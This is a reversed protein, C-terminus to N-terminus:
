FTWSLTGTVTFPQGPIVRFQDRAGEFYRVDFLNQFNLQARFDEDEYFLTADTRTYGPIEFPSRSPSSLDSLSGNRDGVFYVGVGLGFGELAGRQFQYTTWLSAANRPANVLQVGEEFVTDETVRADTYAYSAIVNWGPLIEGVLDFEFGASAQEGVQVQFGPNAPDQTSVNTRTLDYYALTALLRDDFLSAKLGVEYQRGSEPVFIEGDINQGSVPTFSEAYSAYISFDEIPRFVLGVRPSFATDYTEIRTQALLDQFDQEAFDVRGGLVLVLSDFLNIQTQAYLGLTETKTIQDTGPIDGLNFDGFFRDTDYNPEFVDFPEFFFSPFVLRQTVEDREIEHSWEAGLVLTQDLGFIDFDGVFNANVTYGERSSPNELYVRDLASFDLQGAVQPYGTGAVSNSVPTRQFSGLFQNEFRWDDSFRHSFQYGVRVLTTEEETLDPEGVNTRVDLKGAQELSELATESGGALIAELAPLTNGETGIAPIAPLGPGVGENTIRSYEFDVILDTNETNVLQLTPAIFWFETEAFDQFSGGGEYAFNLRYGLNGSADLPGTFDAQTRILEESGITTEIEYRPEDLPRETVLNIVGGLDGSGFLGSSPGKLVEVREINNITSGFQLTDDRLGNRLISTSEFGRIIPLSGRNGAGLRGTSVGSVNRLASGLSVGGQDEVVDQTVSQISQPTDLLDAGTRTSARLPEYRPPPKATVILRLNGSGFDEPTNGDVLVEPPFIDLTLEDATRAQFVEPLSETASVLTLRVTTDDFQEVVIDTVPGTNHRRRYPIATPLVLHTGPIDIVLTNPTRSQFVELAAGNSTELVLQVSDEISIVTVRTIKTLQGYSPYAVLFPFSGAIALGILRGLSNM